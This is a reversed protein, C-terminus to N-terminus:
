LVSSERGRYDPGVQVTHVAATLPATKGAISTVAPRPPPETSDQTTLGLKIALGFINILEAYGPGLLHAGLIRDTARDSPRHHDECQRNDRGGPLQLIV